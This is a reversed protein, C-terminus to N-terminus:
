SPTREQSSIQYPTRGIRPLIFALSNEHSASALVVLSANLVITLCINSAESALLFPTRQVSSNLYNVRNTSSAILPSLMSSSSSSIPAMNPLNSLFL